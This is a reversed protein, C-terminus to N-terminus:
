APTIDVCTGLSELDRLVDLSAFIRHRAGPATSVVQLRPPRDSWMRGGRRHERVIRSSKLRTREKKVVPDKEFLRTLTKVQAAARLRRKVTVNVWQGAEIASAMAM